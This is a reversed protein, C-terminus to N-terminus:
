YTQWDGVMTNVATMPTFTLRYTGFKIYGGAAGLGGTRSYSLIKGNPGSVSYKLSGSPGFKGERSPIPRTNASTTPSRTFPCSASGCSPTIFDVIQLNNGLADLAVLPGGETDGFVQMLHFFHTSSSTQDLYQKWSYSFAQGSAVAPFHWENRQRPSDLHDTDLMASANSTLYMGYCNSISSSTCGKTFIGSAAWTMNGVKWPCLQKRQQSDYYSRPARHVIRRM